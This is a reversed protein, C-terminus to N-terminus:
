TTHENTTRREDESISESIPITVTVTTQLEDRQIKVSGGLDAARETLSRPTFTSAVNIGDDTKNRVKLILAGQYMGLSVWAWRSQTHRGINSLGEAVMHFVEGALRRSVPMDKEIDVEVQIGFLQGCRAAHRRVASSLLAGGKGPDGRLGSVVERMTALEDSVMTTLRALDTAVPNDPGARRQLAEVAFKLGIYPQIASDHLDRGIRAREADAAQSALEERLCANEVSPGFQEVVHQLMSLTQLNIETSEGALILRLQGASGASVPVSLLRPRGALRSLALLMERGVQPADSALGSPGIEIHTDHRWWRNGDGDRWGVSVDTPLSLAQKALPTAADESLEFVEHGEEWCIARCRGSATRLALLAVSSKLKRAIQVILESVVADFGHRPDASVVLQRALDMKRQTAEEIRALAVLVQAIVFLSFPMALLQRWSIQPDNLAFVILSGLGAFAAIAVSERYGARWAAFFVPFLLFLFYHTGSGKALYIMLLFWSADVWYFVRRQVDLSGKAAMWLVAGAYVSFSIVAAPLWPNAGPLVDPMLMGAIIALMVRLSEVLRRHENARHVM